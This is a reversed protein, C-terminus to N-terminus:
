QYRQGFSKTDYYTKQKVQARGLSERELRETQEIQEKQQIVYEPYTLTDEDVNDLKLVADIPLHAERGFM